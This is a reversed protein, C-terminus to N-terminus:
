YPELVFTVRQARANSTGCLVAVKGPKVYTEASLVNQYGTPVFGTVSENAYHVITRVSALQEVTKEPFEAEAYYYSTSGFPHDVKTSCQSRVVITAPAARAESVAAGGWGLGGALGALALGWIWRNSQM